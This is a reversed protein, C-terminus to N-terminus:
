QAIDLSALEQNACLLQTSEEIAPWTAAVEAERLSGRLLSRSCLHKYGARIANM